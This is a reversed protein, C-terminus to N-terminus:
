RVLALKRTRQYAGAKLTCLYVGSAVAKGAESRGDWVVQHRGADQAGQALIRVRQGALDYIALSVDGAVALEYEITTSPNFPNPYAPLLEPKRPLAAAAADTVATSGEGTQDPLSSTIRIDELWVPTTTLFRLATIVAPGDILAEAPVSIQVWQGPSVTPAQGPQTLNNIRLAETGSERYAWLQLQRAYPAIPEGEWTCTVEGKLLLAVTGSHVHTGSLLDASSGECRWGAVPGDGYVPFSGRPVVLYNARRSARTAPSDPLAAAVVVGYTGYPRDVEIPLLGSWVRDGAVSDPVVGDDRMALTRLPQGWSGFEPELVGTVQLAPPLGIGSDPWPDVRATIRVTDGRGVVPTATVAGIRAVRWAVRRVYASDTRARIYLTGLSDVGVGWIAPAAPLGQGLATWNAGHDHSQYVLDRGGVTTYITMPDVPDVNWLGVSGALGFNPRSLSGLADAGGPESVNVQNSWSVGADRTGMAGTFVMHTLEGSYKAYAVGEYGFLYGVWRYRIDPDLPVWGQAYSPLVRVCDQAKALQGARTVHGPVDAAAVLRWGLDDASTIRVRYVVNANGYYVVADDAPDSGIRTVPQIYAVHEDTVAEWVPSASLSMRYVGAYSVRQSSPTEWNCAANLDQMAVYLYRGDSSVHLATAGRVEPPRSIGREDLYIVESFALFVRQGDPHLAAAYFRADYSCRSRPQSTVLLRWTTGEDDSRWVRTEVRSEGSPPDNYPSEGAVYVALNSTVAVVRVSTLRVKEQASLVSMVQDLPVSLVDAVPVAFPTSWTGQPADGEASQEPINAVVMQVVLDANGGNSRIRVTAEYFGPALGIGTTRLTLSIPGSGSLTGQDTSGTPGRVSLWDTTESITWDLTGTGGNTLSLASGKPVGDLQLQKPSIVLVPTAAGTATSDPVVAGGPIQGQAFLQQVEVASLARNYVRVEDLAGKFRRDAGLPEPLGGLCFATGAVTSITLIGRRVEVGDIYLTTSRPTMTVAMHYWQGLKMSPIGWVDFCSSCGIGGKGPSFFPLVQGDRRNAGLLFAGESSGVQGYGAFLAEETTMEDLRTWLALTREGDGSPMSDAAAQIYSSGDFYLAQGVPGAIANVKGM